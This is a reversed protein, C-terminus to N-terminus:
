RTREPPTGRPGRQPRAPEAPPRRAAREADKAARRAEREARRTDPQPAIAPTATPAPRPTAVATVDRGVAAASAAVTPRPALAPVDTPDSTLWSSVDVLGQVTDAAAGFDPNGWWNQTAGFTASALNYVARNTNGVFRGLTFSRSGNGYYNLIGYQPNSGVNNRTGTVPGNVYYLYLAAYGAGSMANSDIVTSVLSDTFSLDMGYYGGVIRNAVITAQWKGGAGIGARYYSASDPLLTDGRITLTATPYSSNSAWLGRRCKRVANTAFRAPGNDHRLGYSDYGVVSCTVQNRLVQAEVFPRNSYGPQAYLGYDRIRTLVNDTFAISDGLVYFPYAVSDVTNGAIVIPGAKTGSYGAHLARLLHYFTSNTVQVRPGSDNDAYAQIAYGSTWACAACGTFQTRDVVLERGGYEFGENYLNLLKSNTVRAYNSGIWGYQGLITDAASEVWLSDIFVSDLDNIYIWDAYNARFKISDGLMTVKTGATAQAVARDAGPARPPADGCCGVSTGDIWIADGSRTYIYNHDLAVRNAGEVQIANYGWREFRSASIGVYGAGGGIYVGEYSQYGSSTDAVFASRRVALSDVFRDSYIGYGYQTKPEEIRVNDVVLSRLGGLYAAKYFGRLVLNRVEGHLGGYWPLGVVSIQESARLIPRTGDALTDGILVIGARIEPTYYYCEGYCDGEYDVIGPAVRITDGELVLPFAYEPTSFPWRQTGLQVAALKAKAADVYWTGRKARVIVPISVQVGPGLAGTVTTTGPERGTIVGDSTVAIRPDASTLSGGTITILAGSADRALGVVEVSQNVVLDATDPLITVQPVQGTTCSGGAVLLVRQGPIPLGVAYSLLILADRSNVKTDGDVDGLSLDFGAGVPLGVINSLIALADRSNALSDRDLDGWYGRAKCYAGSKLVLTATALLDRLTTAASLETVQVRVTDPITDVPNLHLTFLSVVGAAGNVSLGSAWVVGYYASDQRVLPTGFAGDSWDNSALSLVAANWSVRVTYSGLKESGAKRLDAFIPVDLMQYRPASLEGGVGVTVTDQARLSAAWLVLGLATVLWRFSALRNMM